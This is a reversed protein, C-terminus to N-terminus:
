VSESRLLARENCLDNFENKDIVTLRNIICNLGFDLSLLCHLASVVLKSVRNHNAKFDLWNHAWLFLENIVTIVQDWVERSNLWLRPAVATSSQSEHGKLQILHTGFLTRETSRVSFEIIAWVIPHNVPKSSEPPLSPLPPPSQESQEVPTVAGATSCRHRCHTHRWLRSSQDHCVNPALKEMEIVDWHGSKQCKGGFAM